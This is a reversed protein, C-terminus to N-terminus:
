GATETQDNREAKLSSPKEPAPLAITALSQVNFESAIEQYSLVPIDVNQGALVSYIQRRIDISTLVSRKLMPDGSNLLASIQDILPKLVDDQIYNGQRLATRIAEEIQRTLIFVPIIRNKEARRHSIQRALGGRVLEAMQHANEVQPANEVITELIARMNTIPVDEEVLRRLVESIKQVSSVEVAEKVLEGYQSECAALLAKTEQIGAFHSAYRRLAHFMIELLVADPAHFTIGADILQQEHQKHVWYTSRRGILSGADEYDISMLDLDTASDLVLLHEPEIAGEVIPVGELDIRFDNKDGDETPWLQAQPINIGLDIFIRRKITDAGSNFKEASIAKGLDEGLWVALRSMTERSPEPAAPEVERSENELAFVANEAKIQRKRMFALGGAVAALSLFVTVPMGPVFALLFLIVAALSIARPDAGLQGIIETGLDQNGHSAVRTVVAGSAVSVLLAPIQAILGDGVTLLSYTHAAEGFSLGRQWIGISLGGILNIGIIIIGAIADGKIFKMAGDMAGYFQNERELNQRKVKAEAADIDGNRVENDISIQKGPLADLTFRAAVEAVREAGKTIVVFQAVTIVLFVVLGVVIEGGVVFNGFTNVVDGADAQLLILRTTTITLSLRFLTGLLVVSPLASFEVPKSIYFAVILVMLSFALNIGILVDVMVTPLPLIMMSIALLVMIAVVLDTRKAAMRALQNLQLLIKMM